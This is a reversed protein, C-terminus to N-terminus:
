LGRRVVLDQGKKRKLDRGLSKRSDEAGEERCSEGTKEMSMCRRNGPSDRWHLIYKM